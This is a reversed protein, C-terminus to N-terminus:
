ATRRGWALDAAFLRNQADRASVRFVLRDGRGPPRDFLFPASQGPGLQPVPAGLLAVGVFAPGLGAIVVDFVPADGENAVEVGRRGFLGPIAGGPRSTARIALRPVAAPAEDAAAATDGPGEHWDLVSVGLGALYGRLNEAKANPRDGLDLELSLRRDPSAAPASDSSSASAPAAPVAGAAPVAIVAPAAGAPAPPPAATPASEPAPPCPSDPM